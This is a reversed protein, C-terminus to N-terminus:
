IISISIYRLIQLSIGHRREMKGWKQSLGEEIELVLYAHVAEVEVLLDQVRRPVRVLADDRHRGGVVQEYQLVLELGGRRAAGRQLHGNSVGPAVRM